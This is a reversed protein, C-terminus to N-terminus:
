ILYIPFKHIYKFDVTFTLNHPFYQFLAGYYLAFFQFFYIQKKDMLSFLILRFSFFIHLIFPFKVRIFAFDIRPLPSERWKNSSDWWYDLM